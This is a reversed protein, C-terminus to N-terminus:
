TLYFMTELPLGSSCASAAHHSQAMCKTVCWPGPMPPRIVFMGVCVILRLRQGMQPQLLILVAKVAVEWGM